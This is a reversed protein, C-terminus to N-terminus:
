KERTKLLGNIEDLYEDMVAKIKVILNDFTKLLLENDCEARQKKLDRIIKYYENLRRCTDLWNTKFDSM